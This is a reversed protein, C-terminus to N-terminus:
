LIWWGSGFLCAITLAQYKVTLPQTSQEDIVEGAAAAITVVGNGYNKIDLWRGSNSGTNTCGYLTITFTGSALIVDDAPLATYTATVFNFGRLFVPFGWTSDGRLFTANNATGSGLRAAAVTGTTIASGNLNTINTGNIAAATGTLRAADVQGSANAVQVGGVNLVGGTVNLGGGFSGLGTATGGGAGALGSPDFFAREVGAVAMSVRNTNLVFGTSAQATSSLGPAAISGPLVQLPGTMAGGTRNLAANGLTSFNTNMQDPDIITGATFTFPVPIQADLALVAGFSVLFIGVMWLQKKM